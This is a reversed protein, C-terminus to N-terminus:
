YDKGNWLGSAKLNVSPAIRGAKAGDDGTRTSTQGELFVGVDARRVFRKSVVRTSALKGTAILRYVSDVCCRLVYATEPVTLLEAGDPPQVPTKATQRGIGTTM